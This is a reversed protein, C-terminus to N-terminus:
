TSEESERLGLIVKLFLMLISRGKVTIESLRISLSDSSASYKSSIIAKQPEELEM